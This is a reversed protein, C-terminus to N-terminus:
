QVVAQRVELRRLKDVLCTEKRLAFVGELVGEGMLDGVAAEELLPPPHEMGANDLGEFRQSRVAYGLLDFTQRVM